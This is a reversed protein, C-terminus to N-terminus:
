CAPSAIQVARNQLKEYKSENQEPFAEGLNDNPFLDLDVRM